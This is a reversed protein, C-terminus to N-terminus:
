RCSEKEKAVEKVREEPWKPDPIKLIIESICTDKFKKGPFVSLIKIEVGTTCAYIGHIEEGGVMGGDQITDFICQNKKTKKCEVIEEDSGGRIMDCGNDCSYDSFKGKLVKKRGTSLFFTAEYEKIRNNLQYYNQNLLVGHGVVIAEIFTPKWNIRITEGIGDDEKGECWFTSTKQDMAKEAAYFGKSKGPETLVSSASAKTAETLQFFYDPAEDSILWTGSLLFLLILCFRLFNIKHNTPYSM